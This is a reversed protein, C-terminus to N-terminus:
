SGYRAPTKALTTRTVQSPLIGFHRRFADTFCRPCVYGAELAATGVTMGAHLDIAAKEMRRQRVYGYITTGFASKFARKLKFDNLGVIRALQIISPPDLLHADLYERAKTLKPQDLAEAACLRDPALEDIQDALLGLACSELFLSRGAGELPAGFMANILAIGRQSLAGVRAVSVADHAEAVMRALPTDAMEHRAFLEMAADPTFRLSVTRFGHDPLTLTSTSLQPAAGAHIELPRTEFQQGEMDFRTGGHLHYGIAFVDDTEVHHYACEDSPAIEAMLLTIGQRLELAEVERRDVLGSWNRDSAEEARSHTM